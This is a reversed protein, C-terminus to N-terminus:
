THISRIPAFGKGDVFDGEFIREMCQNTGRIQQTKALAAAKQV